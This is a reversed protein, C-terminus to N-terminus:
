VRRAVLPARVTVAAAEGVSATDGADMARPPMTVAVQVPM